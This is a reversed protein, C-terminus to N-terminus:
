VKPKNYIMLPGPEEHQSPEYQCMVACKGVTAYAEVQISSAVKGPSQM